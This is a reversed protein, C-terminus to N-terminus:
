DHKKRKFLIVVTTALVILFGTIMVIVSLGEDDGTQPLTNKKEFNPDTKNDSGESSQPIAPRDDPKPTPTVHTDKTYVYTVTQAQDTFTGTTNGQVEKFTYGDITKQETTYSDGVNGSKVADDSIKNGDTDV